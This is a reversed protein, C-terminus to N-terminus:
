KETVEKFVRIAEVTVPVGAYQSVHILVEKIEEPTVGVNLAGQIHGKLQPFRGLATLVAMTIMSRTKVPLGPRSWVDGFCVENLIRAFGADFKEMEKLRQAGAEGFLETRKKIGRERADDAM